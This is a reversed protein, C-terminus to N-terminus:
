TSAWPEATAPAIGGFYSFVQRLYPRVATCFKVGIPLTRASFDTVTCVFLPVTCKTDWGMWVVYPPSIFVGLLTVYELREFM